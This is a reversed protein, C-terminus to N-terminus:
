VLRGAVQGIAAALDRVAEELSLTAFVQAAQYDPHERNLEQLCHELADSHNRILNESNLTVMNRSEISTM